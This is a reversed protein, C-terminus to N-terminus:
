RRSDPYVSVRLEKFRDQLENQLEVLRERDYMQYDKMQPLELEKPIKVTTKKPEATACLSRIM